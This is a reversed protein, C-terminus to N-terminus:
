GAKVYGGAAKRALRRMELSLLTASVSSAQIGSSAVLDDVGRVEDSLLRYLARERETLAQVARPEERIPAAGALTALPEVETLVDELSTILIAGDRILRNAGVHEPRDIPGPVVMVQRGLEGALRATILSGSREGAEIVLTALSLGAVIRNRRPFTGPSAESAYPMESIVAGHGAAIRAVLPANEAPYLRGHGSGLVAITRGDSNLAAEHAITDIGRALGSVITTGIRALGGALRDACRHGYPTPNRPGVVAVALRDRPQLEGLVWLALPPDPLRALDKPFEPDTRTLIRIGVQACRGREEDVMAAGRPDCIRRARESAIGDVSTLRSMNWSFVSALDGGSAEELRAALHPGIGSVLALRLWADSPTM